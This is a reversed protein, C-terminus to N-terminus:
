AVSQVLRNQGQSSGARRSPTYSKRGLVPSGLSVLSELAKIAKKSERSLPGEARERERLARMVRKDILKLTVFTRVVMLRVYDSSDLELMELLIRIIRENKMGLTGVSIVAQSRTDEDPDELNKETKECAKSFMGLAALAKASSLRVDVTPDDWLRRELITYVDEEKTEAFVHIQGLTILLEAALCRHKWVSSKSLMKLTSQVIDNDTVNLQKVLIELSKAKVHTDNSFELSQKLKFRANEDSVCLRGLLVSAEFSIQDDPDPNCCFHSLVKVLEPFTNISKNVYQVNKGDIMTSILDLRVESNGIVLYKLIVQIVEEEWWGVLILSKAAEYRVRQEEDLKMREKLAYIVTADGCRLLGLHKTADVREDTRESTLNNHVITKVREWKLGAYEQSKPKLKNWSSAESSNDDANEQNEEEQSMKTDMRVVLPRSRARDSKPTSVISQEQQLMLRFKKETTSPGKRRGKVKEKYLTLRTEQALKGQDCVRVAPKRKVPDPDTFTEALRPYEKGRTTRTLPLVDPPPIPKPYYVIPPSKRNNLLRKPMKIPIAPQVSMMRSIESPLCSTAATQNRTSGVMTSEKSMMERNQFILSQSRTRENEVKTPKVSLMTAQYVKDYMRYVRKALKDLDGKYVTSVDIEHKELKRWPLGEFEKEYKQLFSGPVALPMQHYSLPDLQLMVDYHEGYEFRHHESQWYELVVDRDEEEVDRLFAQRTDERTPTVITVRSKNTVASVETLFTKEQKEAGNKEQTEQEDVAEQEQGKVKYPEVEEQGQSKDNEKEEDENEDEEEDEDEEQVTATIVIPQPSSTQIFEKKQFVSPLEGLQDGAESQGSSTDKRESSSTSSGKKTSSEIDSEDSEEETQKYATTTPVESSAESMPTDMMGRQGRQLEQLDESGSISPTYLSSPGEDDSYGPRQSIPPLRQESFDESDSRFTVATTYTKHSQRLGTQGQRKNKGCLTAMRDELWKVRKRAITILEGEGHRVDARAYQLEANIKYLIKLTLLAKDVKEKIKVCDERLRDVEQDSKVVELATIITHLEAQANRVIDKQEETHKDSCHQVNYKPKLTIGSRITTPRTSYMSM